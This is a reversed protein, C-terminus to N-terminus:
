SSSSGGKHAKASVVRVMLYLITLSVAYMASNSIVLGNLQFHKVLPLAFLLKFLLNSAGSLAILVYHGGSALVSVLVLASFYFPVQILSWNYLIAVVLTNDATFAGREFLLQILYHSLMMNIFAVGIGGLFMWLAWKMALANVDTGGSVRAQSFVPLAARGIAMAGMGLILGLIRNAYSLSSLAGTSLSAALFQDVIGTLSTLLQGVSLVGIGGWFGQWSPSQYRFIPLNLEAARKLPLGLALMQLAIGAVTGWILPEPMWGPPMLLALLIVLAPVAELLTNRHRGGAMMWASFLSVILGLPLMLSLPGAMNLAQALAKGTLGAWGKVLLFPLGIWFLAGLGIGLLLTFALLESRFRPLETKNDNRLRAALPVLVVTLISFWVSVPWNVLNFIFVYADVTPSIGYRWAITVEKGAGALKGLLVFASVWLFGEAIRRHHSHPNALHQRIRSVIRLM